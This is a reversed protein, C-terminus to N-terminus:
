GTSASPVEVPEPVNPPEVNRGFYIGALDGIMNQAAAAYNNSLVIVTVNDDVYRHLEAAFGPSRGNIRVVSRDNRRGIFWGYGIANDVHATFMLERHKADLLREGYLADDFKLLDAATSYLSGNGTKASWDLHPANALSTAGQPTYGRARDPILRAPDGDHGTHEMRLPVFIRERLFDGYSRGSVKEIVHALLNYNSNSYSYRAGPEFELSRHKFKAVLSAPTQPQMSWLDYEPFDNINPIGSTHTLLHHLTMRDGRPYEPVVRSVPDTVKLKGDQQLLLIAAATFPKSVSAIHFRTRAHNPVRLEEDAMGYVRTLVPAGNRAILVVGSFVRARLFPQVYADIRQELEAAPSQALAAGACCLLLPFLRKWRV